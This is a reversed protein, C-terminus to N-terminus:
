LKINLDDMVENIDDKNLENKKEHIWKLKQELNEEDSILDNYIYENDKKEEVQNDFYQNCWQNLGRLDSM